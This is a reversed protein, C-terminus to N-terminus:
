PGGFSPAVVGLLLVLGEGGPLFLSQVGGALLQGLLEVVHQALDPVVFFPGLLRQCFEVAIQPQGGHSLVHLGQPFIRSSGWPGRRGSAIWSSTMRLRSSNLVWDWGWDGM